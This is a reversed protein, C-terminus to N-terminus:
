MGNNAKHRSSVTFMYIKENLLTVILENNLCISLYMVVKYVWM